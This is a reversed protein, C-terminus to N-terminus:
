KSIIAKLEGFGYQMVYKKYLGRCRENEICNNCLMPKIKQDLFFSNSFQSIENNQSNERIPIIQSRYKKPFICYPVDMIYVNRTLFPILLKQVESLKVVLEPYKEYDSSPKSLAVITKHATLNKHLDKLNTRDLTVINKYDPTIDLNENGAKLITDCYDQLYCYSCRM